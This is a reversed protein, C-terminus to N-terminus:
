NSNYYLLFFWSLLTSFMELDVDPFLVTVIDRYNEPPLNENRRDWVWQLFADRWCVAVSESKECNEKIIKWQKPFYGWFYSASTKDLRDFIIPAVENILSELYPTTCTNLHKELVKLLDYLHYYRNLKQTDENKQLPWALIQELIM